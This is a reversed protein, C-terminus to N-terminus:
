RSIFFWLVGLLLPLAGAIAGLLSAKVQLRAIDSELKYVLLTLEHTAERLEAMQTLVLKEHKVWGDRYPPDSSM